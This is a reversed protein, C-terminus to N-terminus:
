GYQGHQANTCKKLKYGRKKLITGMFIGILLFLPVTVMLRVLTFPLGLFSIEFITMPIRFVGVFGLYTFIIKLSAGKKNLTEALPFAVYLGGVSFGALLLVWLYGKIGCNDGLHQIVTEKRVWVEFLGILIFACPLIKLMEILVSLFAQGTKEGKEFDMLYSIGVFVFFITILIINILKSKKM